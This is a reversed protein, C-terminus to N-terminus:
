LKQALKLKEPTGIDIFYGDTKYCVIESIFNPIIDTSFNSANPYSNKIIKLFKNTIIYVAGNALKSKHSKPKEIFSKIFNNKNLEVIGCSSVDDTEFVMMSMLSEKRHIKHFECFNKLDDQIYNDAHILFFDEEGFFHYNAILSGVTGLLIEENVLTVGHIKKKIIYNEVQSALYYTNVLIDKIGLTKLKQIWIDLIEQNKIKVLCKPISKTIPRLRTGLGAALLFAKM